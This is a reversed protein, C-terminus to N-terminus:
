ALERFQGNRNDTYRIIISFGNEYFFLSSEKNEILYKSATYKISLGFQDLIQKSIRGIDKENVHDIIYEGMVYVRDLFYFVVKVEKEFEFIKFGYAKLDQGNIRFVNFCDPSKFSSLLGSEDTGFPISEFIINKDTQFSTIEKDSRRSLRLYPMIDDKFCYPYPSKKALRKYHRVFEYSYRGYVLHITKLSLFKRFILLILILIFVILITVLMM